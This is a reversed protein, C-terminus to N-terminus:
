PPGTAGIISAGCGVIAGFIGGGVSGFIPVYTGVISGIIGYEVAGVICSAGSGVQEATM